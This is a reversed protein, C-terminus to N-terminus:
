AFRPLAFAALGYILVALIIVAAFGLHIALLTALVAGVVSAFGNIAWAWPASDRGTKALRMTGTPFPMGMCIALPAILAVSIAIKATDPLHILASFVEPLIMLYTLSILATTTIVMTLYSGGMKRSQWRSTLWSGVAAFLLFSCLVVAVAYLPHALFLVFKQIFAIEMFMFALGIAVFYLTVPATPLARRASSVALPALILLFSAIFAQILTAVLLPYSWDLLPMGGQERLALLEAAASWKFFRFFYPRDDTAPEIYFKYRDIFDQRHAGLLAVAGEFFYPQALLNYRNAEDAAMGPYYAVDFSRKRCFEKVAEIEMPTFDSNKVLVTVTKWGRIMVLRAAPNPVGDKELAIVGTAFLKLADRPPLSLWRTFALMGGPTLRSLYTQLAEVTYLYSESLGYLGASAVGFSDLLAVQVLDYRETTTNAFGRAEAQHVHVDPRRYIDGSFQRFRQEVLDIVNRDLEVADLTSAGHYLTQLVDSGPGAGLVLVRPPNHSLKLLHYPLASTLQDLYGLRALNGDFQTLVSPGNGDVFAALQPPPEDTANLSMGPAHRFPIRPSEVVSVVGM